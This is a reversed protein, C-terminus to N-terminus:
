IFGFKRLSVFWLVDLPKYYFHIIILAGIGILLTLIFFLTYKLYRRKREAETEIYPIVTLPSIGLLQEIGKRGYVGRDFSDLLFVAGFGAVISAIFGIFFLSFRNPKDPKEPLLPPEILTFREGKKESELNEALQAEMQKAKIEKFKLLTNEYERVLGRYEREVQPSKTLRDEYLQLKERLSGQKNKLSILESKTAELDAQIQIYAPNDPEEGPIDDFSFHDPQKAMEEKLSSVLRQQKKVDPHDESYKDSLSILNTRAEKLRVAIEKKSRNVGVDKELADIEKKLKSVDPHKESYRASLSILRTELMKLRDRPGMIREGTESYNGLNPKLQLLESELYIKREELSQIQRKVETTEREQRDMFDININIMEPLSGANIEKFEALKVELIKVREVLKSAEDQLFENAEEAMETRNKLNENLFLSVFENAVKQALHPSENLYSLSFAITAKAARGTRPDFIDASIMDLSIDERMNSLIVEMPDDKRDDEYLNYKDIITKMNTTTMVRQSIVQIRQDAYSTVTTRVLDQPIEQQEILIIASSKYIAPLLFTIVIAIILLASFTIAFQWKRRFFAALYDSFTKENEISQKIYQTEDLMNNM